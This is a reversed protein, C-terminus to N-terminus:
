TKFFMGEDFFVGPRIGFFRRMKMLIQDFDNLLRMKQGDRVFHPGLAKLLRWFRSRRSVM